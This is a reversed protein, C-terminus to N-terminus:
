PAQLLTRVLAPVADQAPPGIRGLTRAASKRVDEDPDDLLKVLEPVADKADPGVRGLVEVAKRRVSVDPNQLAQILAPVAAPGMRGLADAAAEQESWDAFPKIPRVEGAPAEFAAPAVLSTPYTPRQGAAAPGSLVGQGSLVTAGQPSTAIVKRPPTPTGTCGAAAITAILWFLALRNMGEADDIPLATDVTQRNGKPLM